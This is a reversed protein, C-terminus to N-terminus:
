TRLRNQLHPTPLSNDGQSHMASTAEGEQVRLSHEMAGALQLAPTRRWHLQRQILIPTPCSLSPFSLNESLSPSSSFSTSDPKLLSGGDKWTSLSCTPLHPRRFDEGGIQLKWDGTLRSIKIAQVANRSDTLTKERKTPICPKAKGREM